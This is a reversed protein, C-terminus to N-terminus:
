WVHQTNPGCGGSILLPPTMIWGNSGTHCDLKSALPALSPNPLPDQFRELGQSVTLSPDVPAQVEDVAGDDAGMLVGCSGALGSTVGIPTRVFGQPPRAATERGLDVNSGFAQALRDGETQGATLDMVALLEGGQHAGAPDPAQSAAPRPAIGIPHGAVLGVTTTFDPCRM